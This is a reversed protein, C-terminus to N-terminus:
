DPFPLGLQIAIARDLAGLEHPTLRGIPKSVRHRAVTRIQNAVARSERTLGSAESRIRCEYPRLGRDPLRTIPVVQVVSDYKCAANNSVVVAPRSKRIERGEAPDLRV